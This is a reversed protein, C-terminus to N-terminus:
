KLHERNQCFETSSKKGPQKKFSIYQCPASWRELVPRKLASVWPESCRSSLWNRWISSHKWCVVTVAKANQKEVDRRLPIKYWRRLLCIYAKGLIEPIPIGDLALFSTSSSSFHSRAKERRAPRQARPLEEPLSLFRADKEWGKNTTLIDKQQEYKTDKETM